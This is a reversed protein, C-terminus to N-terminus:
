AWAQAVQPADHSEINTLYVRDIIM